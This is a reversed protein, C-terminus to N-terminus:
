DNEEPHLISQLQRNFKGVFYNWIVHHFPLLCLLGFKFIRNEHIAHCDEYWFIILESKPYYILQTNELQFNNDIQQGLFEATEIEETTKDEYGISPTVCNKNTTCFEMFNTKDVNTTRKNFLM